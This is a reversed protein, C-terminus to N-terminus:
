RTGAPEPLGPDAQDLDQVRRADAAQGPHGEHRRLRLLRVADQGPRHAQGEQGRLDGQRLGEGAPGQGRRAARRGQEQLGPRDLVEQGGVELVPGLRPGEQGADAKAKDKTLVIRLDRREPSRSARSTRTTTRRSRRRRHGQGQGQDGEDHDQESLERIRQQYLVDEETLGSTRSSSRTTQGEPSSSSRAARRIQKVDDQRHGQHRSGTPRRSSGRRLPDPLRM